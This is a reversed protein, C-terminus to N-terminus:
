DEDTPDWGLGELDKTRPRIVLGGNIDVFMYWVPTRESCWQYLKTLEDKAMGAQPFKMPTNSPQTAHWAAIVSAATQPGALTTPAAEGGQLGHTVTVKEVGGSGGTYPRFVAQVVTRNVIEVKFNKHAEALRPFEHPFLSAVYLAERVKYAFMEPSMGPALNWQADLGQDLNSLLPQM